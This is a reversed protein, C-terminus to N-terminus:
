KKPVCDKPEMGNKKVIADVKCEMKTMRHEVRFGFAVGGATMTGVLGLIVPGFELM